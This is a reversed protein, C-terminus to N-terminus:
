ASHAREQNLEQPDEASASSGGLRTWVLRAQRIVEIMISM